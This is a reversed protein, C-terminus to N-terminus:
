EGPLNEWGMEDALAERFWTQQASILKFHYDLDDVSLGAASMSASLVLFHGVLSVKIGVLGDAIELAAILMDTGGRVPVIAINVGMYITTEAPVKLGEALVELDEGNGLSVMWRAADPTKEKLCEDPDFGRRLIFEEVLRVPDKGGTIKRINIAAFKKLKGM